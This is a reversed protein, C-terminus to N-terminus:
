DPSPRDTPRQESIHMMPDDSRQRQLWHYLRVVAVGMLPVAVIVWLVRLWGPVDGGGSSLWKVSGLVVVGGVMVPVLIWAPVRDFVADWVPDGSSREREPQVEGSAQASGGSEDEPEDVVEDAM